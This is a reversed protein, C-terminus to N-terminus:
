RVWFAFAVAVCFCIEFRLRFASGFKSVCNVRLQTGHPRVQTVTTLVVHHWRTSGLCYYCHCYNCDYCYNCSKCYYCYHMMSMLMGCVIHLVMMVMVMKRLAAMM